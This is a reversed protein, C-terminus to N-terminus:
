MSATNRKHLFTKFYRYAMMYYFPPKMDVMCPEEMWPKWVQLHDFPELNSIKRDTSTQLIFLSILNLVRELIVMGVSTSNYYTHHLNPASNQRHVAQKVYLNFLSNLRSFCPKLVIM